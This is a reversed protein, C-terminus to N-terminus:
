RDIHYQLVLARHEAAVSTNFVRYHQSDEVAPACGADFAGADPGRRPAVAAATDRVVITASPKNIM